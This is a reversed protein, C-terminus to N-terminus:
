WRGMEDQQSQARVQSIPNKKRTAKDRCHDWICWRREGEGGTQGDLGDSDSISMLGDAARWSSTLRLTRRRRVVRRTKETNRPVAATARLPPPRKAKERV